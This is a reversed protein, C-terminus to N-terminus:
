PAVRAASVRYLAGGIAHHTALTTTLYGGPPPEGSAWARFQRWLDTVLLFGRPEQSLPVSYPAYTFKYEVFPAARAIPFQVGILVQGAFGAFQYEYTRKNEGESAFGIETHPLTIGGGFGIYPRVPLFFAPLRVLGNLTLINHGHSFEMHRFVDEIKANEPAPRGNITGKFSARDTPMAIAKAHTFDVMGGFPSAPSWHQSRLGYYIPSKFPRGIWNFNSVTLDTRGPAVVNVASPLTLSVGGYGGVLHEWGAARAAGGPEAEAGTAARQETPAELSPLLVPSPAAVVWATLAVLGTLASAAGPWDAAWGFCTARGGDLASSLTWM